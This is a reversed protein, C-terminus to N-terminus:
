QVFRGLSSQFDQIFALMIGTLAITFMMLQVTIQVPLGFFFVPLAPMLRGILGLGIYYTLGVVLFPASLQLGLAFSDAVQRGIANAFDGIPLESGPVFMVYSEVVARLMLHHMDSVFILVIATTLLFGSITSSQQDAIPDNILANAMSSALAAITGATQLASIMIRMILGIFAGVLIEAGMMNALEFASNPPLPLDRALTPLVLFSIALAVGLRLLTSVYAASFGPLFVMATGIRAFILFFAFINLELLEQLM